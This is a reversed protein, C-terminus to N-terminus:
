LKALPLLTLATFVCVPICKGSLGGVVGVCVNIKIGGGNQVTYVGVDVTNGGEFPDGRERILLGPHVDLDSKQQFCM